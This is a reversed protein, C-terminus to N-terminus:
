EYIQRKIQGLRKLTEKKGGTSVHSKGPPLPAIGTDMGWTQHGPTINSEIARFLTSTKYM